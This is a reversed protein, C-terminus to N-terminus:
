SEGEDEEEVDDDEADECADDDALERRGVEEIRGVEEEMVGEDVSERRDMEGREEEREEM